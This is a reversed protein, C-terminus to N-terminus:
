VVLWTRDMSLSYVTLTLVLRPHQETSLTASVWLLKLPSNELRDLYALLNPYSGELRIEVGHRYLGSAKGSGGATPQPHTQPRPQATSEEGNGAGAGAKDSSLLPTVPLTKLSILRLGNHADRTGIMEELLATMRDPPVLLSELTHLRLSLADLRGQLTTLEARAELDPHREPANLALVQAQIDTLRTHAEAISREAAQSRRLAPDICASYAILAIGGLLAVAILWRERLQLADYRATLKLWWSKM